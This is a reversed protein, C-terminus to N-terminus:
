DARHVFADGARRIKKTRHRDLGGGGRFVERCDCEDDLPEVAQADADALELVIESGIRGRAEEERAV